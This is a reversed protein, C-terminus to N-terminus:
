AFKLTVVYALVVETALGCRVLRAPAPAQVVGGQKCCNRAYRPGITEILKLPAPVHDLRESRDGGIRTMPLRCSRTMPWHSPLSTAIPCSRLIAASIGFEANRGCAVCTRDGPRLVGRDPPPLAASTSRLGEKLLAPLAALFRLRM